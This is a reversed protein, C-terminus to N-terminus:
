KDREKPNKPTNESPAVDVMPVRSTSFQQGKKEWDDSACEYGHQSLQAKLELRLDNINLYM